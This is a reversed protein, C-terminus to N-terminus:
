YLLQLFLNILFVKKDSSFGLWISQAVSWLEPSHSGVGLSWFFLKVLFKSFLLNQGWLWQGLGGCLQSALWVQGQEFKGLWFLQIRWRIHVM